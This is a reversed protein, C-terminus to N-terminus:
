FPKAPYHYSIPINNDFFDYYLHKSVGRCLHIIEMQTALFRM